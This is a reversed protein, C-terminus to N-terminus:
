EDPMTIHPAEPPHVEFLGIDLPQQPQVPRLPQSALRSLARTDLAPGQARDRRLARAPSLPEAQEVGRIRWYSVSLRWRLAARAEADPEPWRRGDRNVPEVPARRARRRLSPDIVPRLSCWRAEPPLGSRGPRDDEVRGAYADLAAERTEFAPGVAESVFEVPAGALQQAGQERAAHGEPAHLAAEANPAVPYVIANV